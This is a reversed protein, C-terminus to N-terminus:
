IRRSGGLGGEWGEWSYIKGPYQNLFYCIVYMTSSEWLAIDAVINAVIYAVINSVINAVM